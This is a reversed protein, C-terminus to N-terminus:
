PRLPRFGGCMGWDWAAVTDYPARLAGLVRSRTMRGFVFLRASGSGDALM